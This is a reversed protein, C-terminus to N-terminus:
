RGFKGRATRQGNLIQGVRRASYTKGNKKHCVGDAKLKAAIDVCSWEPHKRKHEAVIEELAQANESRVRNAKELDGKRKALLAKLEGSQEIEQAMREAKGVARDFKRKGKETLPGANLYELAVAAHELCMSGISALTYLRSFKPHKRATAWCTDGEVRGLALRVRMHLDPPFQVLDPHYPRVETISAECDKAFEEDEELGKRWDDGAAEGGKGAAITSGPAAPTIGRPAKPPKKTKAAPKV